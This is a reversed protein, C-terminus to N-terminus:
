SDLLYNTKVNKRGELIDKHLLIDVGDMTFKEESLAVLASKQLQGDVVLSDVKVCRLLKTCSITQVPIYLIDEEKINSLIKANIVSVPKNLYPDTLTNGTDLYGLMHYKLNHYVIDVNHYYSVTNRLTRGQRVYNYLIVPSILVLVVFNISLGNHYFILGDQKYSFEINLYYLFGGLVISVMYFYGINKLFYSFDKFSFTVIMMIISICIKIFFLTISSMPVFLCFISLAGIGAGLFIRKYSVNRRLLVSVTLLLLFDFGFNLLFILDLYLKM